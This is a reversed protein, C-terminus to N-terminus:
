KPMYMTRIRTDQEHQKKIAEHSQPTSVGKPNHYYVGLDTKLKLFKYGKTSMRCWMEYDGSAPFSPDFGGASLVSSRKLMPFPGCCCGIQLLNMINNADAWKYQSDLTSHDVSDSIFCNSYIVDMDPHGVQAEALIELASPFLKDDVNYNMVYDYEAEEIGMNWAEYIGLRTSCELITTRINPRIGFRKIKELSDDTSNADIIILEFNELTQANLYGLYREIYESSNYNSCIISIM